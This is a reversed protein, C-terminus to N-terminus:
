EKQELTMGVAAALAAMGEDLKTEWVRVNLAMGDNRQLELVNPAMESPLKFIVTATGDKNLTAKDFFVTLDAVHRSSPLTFDAPM